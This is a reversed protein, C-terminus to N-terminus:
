QNAKQERPAFIAASFVILVPFFELTYRPESNDLTLLLASRLAIFAVMAWALPPLGIWSTRTTNLTRWRRLGIAALVFYALNLAANAASFLIQGPHRRDRWWESEIDFFETRPRFAMNLLRAVPLLVYYCIPNAQIRESALENFRADVSPTAATNQNYTAFLAATPAYLPQSERPTAHHALCGSAFARTPVDALEIHGGDYNWYVDETSSFEIAWTRYWRNFGTLPHGGTDTASRPALPQFVHFTHWNRATWPVLPLLVCLSAVLVPAISLIPKALRGPTALAAWLMAPVVAAALLGQEPRLLISCSLAIAILWLWRNYHAADHQWRDFAYFALAISTLVLTETLPTAVYNALFPCLAGLWLAAYAARRGFLRGALAAALWCTVLDAALQVYLVARYNEMGFLRFCVALFLPYGPLRILTSHIIISGPTLGQQTVGYIHHQLFNKAIDGYVLSDGAVQSLRAIFWLRLLLGAGLAAAVLIANLRSDPTAAPSTSNPRRTM